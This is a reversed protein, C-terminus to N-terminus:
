ACRCASALAQGVGDTGANGSDVVFRDTYFCGCTHQGSFANDDIPHVIGRFYGTDAAIRTFNGLM